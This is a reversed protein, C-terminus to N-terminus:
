LFRSELLSLVDERATHGVVEVDSVLRVISQAIVSFYVNKTTLRASNVTSFAIKVASM